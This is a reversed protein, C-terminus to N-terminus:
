FIKLKFNKNIIHKLIGFSKTYTLSYRRSFKLPIGLFLIIFLYRLMIRSSFGKSISAIIFFLAKLLRNNYYYILAKNFLFKGDSLSDRNKQLYMLSINLTRKRTIGQYKSSIQSNHVRWSYLYQPVNIFSSSNRVRLYFEYDSSPFYEESFFGHKDFVRKHICATSNFLVFNKYQLEEKIIENQIPVKQKGICHDNDDIINFFSGCIDSNTKLMYDLQLKIRESSCIDDQDVIFIYDSRSEQFGRNYASVQSPFDQIILRIRPDKFSNIIDLSSDNSCNEVIIFEFYTHNQNLISEISKSIYKGGNHVPM